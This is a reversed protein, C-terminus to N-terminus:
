YIMTTPQKPCYMNGMVGRWLIVKGGAEPRRYEHWHILVKVEYRKNNEIEIRNIYYEHERKCLNIAYQNM